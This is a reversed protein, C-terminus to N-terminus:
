SISFIRSKRSRKRKGAACLAAPLVAPAIKQQKIVGMDWVQTGSPVLPIMNDNNGQSHCGELKVKDLGSWADLYLQSHYGLLKIKDLVLTLYNLLM